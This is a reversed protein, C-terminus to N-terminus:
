NGLMELFMEEDLEEIEYGKAKLKRVESTKSSETKGNLFRLDQFGYVVFNVKKNIDKLPVGGRRAVQLHAEDRTMSMLKGTFLFHKALFESDEIRQDDPISSYLNALESQSLERRDSNLSVSGSYKNGLIRGPKVGVSSALEALDTLGSKELLKTAVYGAAKADEEARHNAGFDLGLHELVNSLRYNTLDLLRRSMVLTCYFELDLDKGHEGLSSLLVNFDFAANHSILASDSIFRLVEPLVEFLKPSGKVTKPGIGHLATNFEDFDKQYLLSSYSDVLKGNSFRALGIECASSRDKNATEFDIAVFDLDGM